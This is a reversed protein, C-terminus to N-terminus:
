VCFTKTKFQRWTEDSDVANQIEPSQTTLLNIVRDVKYNLSDGVSRVIAEYDVKATTTIEGALVVDNGKALCECAVHAKPDSKLIATLVADSIQNAYKDPHYKSVMETSFMSM